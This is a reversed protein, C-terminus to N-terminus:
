GVDQRVGYASLVGTDQFTDSRKKLNILTRSIRVAVITIVAHRGANNSAGAPENARVAERAKGTSGFNKRKRRTWRPRCRGLRGACAGRADDDVAFHAPDAAVRACLHPRSPGSAAHKAPPARAHSHTWVACSRSLQSHAQGIM